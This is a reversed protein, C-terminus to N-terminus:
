LARRSAAFDGRMWHVRKLLGQLTAEYATGGLERQWILSATHNFMARRLQTEDEQQHLHTCAPPPSADWPVASGAFCCPGGPVFWPVVAHLQTPPKCEHACCQRYLLLNACRRRLGTSRRPQLGVGVDM